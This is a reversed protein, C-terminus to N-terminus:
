VLKLLQMHRLELDGYEGSLSGINIIKGKNPMHKLVEQCCFFVGKLNTDMVYDWDKESLKDFDNTKNVGANNVLVDIKGYKKKVKTFINQVSTKKSVDLKYIDKLGIEAATKVAAKRDSRYTVIVHGGEKAFGLAIAKGIGKSSGTILCVKNKLKM